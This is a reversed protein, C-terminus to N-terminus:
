ASFRPLALGWEVQAKQLAETGKALGIQYAANLQEAKTGFRELPLPKDPAAVIATGHREMLRIIQLASNYIKHRTDIVHVLKPFDRYKHAYVARGEQPMKRYSRERTLVILLKDCGDDLAKQIPIPAHLGGDLYDQGKYHVPPACVPISCSARLVTCPPVIDEKGFYVTKGTRIDTAGAYYACPNKRFADYDFPDLTEPIKGFIYDMGFLSGTHFFNHLSLYERNGAYNATTRLGRENQMSVYSISISAGASVGVVEDAMFKANLFSQLVGASFIGRMGGGELVIGIKM